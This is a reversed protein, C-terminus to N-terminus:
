SDSESNGWARRKLVNLFCQLEVSRSYRTVTAFNHNSYQVQLNLSCGSATVKNEPKMTTEHNCQWDCGLYQVVCTLLCSIMRDHGGQLLSCTWAHQTLITDSRRDNVQRVWEWPLLNLIFLYIYSCDGKSILVWRIQGYLYNYLWWTSASTYLDDALCMGCKNKQVNFMWLRRNKHPCLFYMFMGALQVPHEEQRQTPKSLTSLNCCEVSHHM